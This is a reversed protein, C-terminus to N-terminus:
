KMVFRRRSTEAKKKKRRTEKARVRAMDMSKRVMAETDRVMECAMTGAVRSIRAMTIKVPNAIGIWYMRPHHRHIM